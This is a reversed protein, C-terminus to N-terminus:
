RCRKRGKFPIRPRSLPFAPNLLELTVAEPRRSHYEVIKKLHVFSELDMALFDIGVESEEM